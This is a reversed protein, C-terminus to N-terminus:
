KLYVFISSYADRVPILKVYYVIDVGQVQFTTEDSYSDGNFLNIVSSFHELQKVMVDNIETQLQQISIEHEDCLFRFTTTPLWQNSLSGDTWDIRMVGLKNENKVNIAGCEKIPVLQLM